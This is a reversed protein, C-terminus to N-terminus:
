LGLAVTCATEPYCRSQIDALPELVTPLQMDVPDQEEIVQDAKLHPPIAAAGKSSGLQPSYAKNGYKLPLRHQPMGNPERRLPEDVPSQSCCLQLAREILGSVSVKSRLGRGLNSCDESDEHVGPTLEVELSSNESMIGSSIILITAM